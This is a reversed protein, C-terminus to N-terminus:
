KKLRTAAVSRLRPRSGWTCKFARCFSCRLSMIRQGSALSSDSLLKGIKAAGQKGQTRQEEGVRGRCQTYSPAPQTRPLSGSIPFKNKGSGKDLLWSAFVLVKHVELSRPLTGSQGLTDWFTGSHGLIDWFKEKFIGFKAKPATPFHPPWQLPRGVERRGRGM